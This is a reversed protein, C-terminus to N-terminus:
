AQELKTKKRKSLAANFFEDMAKLSSGKFGEEDRIADKIIGKVEDAKRRMETGKETDINMVLEIKNVIEEHKVECSTGRAVELCVGVEKELLVVNAYQDAALPWGIIPVGHSLAELMSNWGCHSLFASISNHSLIEVQPAWKHVLLGRKQDQIRQEFGRPLWQEAKFESNIDFGLPPRVVWIFFKGTVELATALEMMQSESITNQSGFSIYLVSNLPKSDLWKKCSDSSIGPRSEMSLLVPGIPWVPRGIKRRLYTLGIKDIEEVTNVLIGDSSLWKAFEKKLFGAFPDDGAAFRLNGPLQTVHIKSAEPFDPLTIEDIYELWPMNTYLSYYCAMGFGGPSAFIASCVGFERAIEVAWGFVM